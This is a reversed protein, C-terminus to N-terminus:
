EAAPPMAFSKRAGHDAALLTVVNNKHLLATDAPAAAVIGADIKSARAARYIDDWGSFLTMEEARSMWRPGFKARVTHWLTSVGNRFATQLKSDHGGTSIMGHVARTISAILGPGARRRKAGYFCLFYKLKWRFLEMRSLQACYSQSPWLSLSDLIHRFYARDLRIRGCDYLSHFLETGPLAMYFGVSLDTVGAAVLRDIFELNEALHEPRDHPFGIVIFAAVNLEAKVASEISTFLRETKMKKKIFKRTTESGSEPAYAMSVMGSRKLLVAVEDDIAESRTGTPLQWTIDLKRAILERCFKSIWDKRIIATLDQFPFNRAGHREVHHEIEDVVAVPDRPIWRPLWMNPASCYTCQYPCGRTALIPVTISNTYMGGVFRHRYYTALDIHHWAPPRIDDVGQRRERRPCIVVAAASRNAAGVGDTAVHDDRYGLGAIDDPTRGSELRELLEIITEEGEGLVVYDARSTMLCFEPMATVHEGGIVVPLDPRTAKLADILQVVAPWEHTFVVSIGLLSAEAPVRAVIQPPRLGVLYGQYYATRVKPGEGVADIVSVRRGTAEVAAAVYAIGLPATISTTAFRFAEVAAPRILSLM